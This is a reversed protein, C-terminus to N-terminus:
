GVECLNTIVVDSPTWGKLTQSVAVKIGELVNVGSLNRPVTITGDGVQTPLHAMQYAYIYVKETAENNYIENAVLGRIFSSWNNSTALLHKEIDDNMTPTVKFNLGVNKLEKSM